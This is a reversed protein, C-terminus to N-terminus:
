WTAPNTLSMYLDDRIPVYADFICMVNKVTKNAMKWDLLITNHCGEQLKECPIVTSYYSCLVLRVNPLTM